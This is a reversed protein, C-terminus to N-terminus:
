FWSLSMLVCLPENRHLENLSVYLVASHNAIQGLNVTIAVPNKFASLQIQKDETIILLEIVYLFDVVPIGNSILVAPLM